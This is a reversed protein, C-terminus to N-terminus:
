ARRTLDWSRSRPVERRGAGRRNHDAPGARAGIRWATRCPDAALRQGSQRHHRLVERTHQVIAVASLRVSVSVDLLHTQRGTPEFSAPLHELAAQDPGEFRDTHPAQALTDLFESIPGVAPPLHTSLIRRPDLDRLTSLSPLFKSEDVVHVWPSDVAAWLHQGAHLADPRFTASTTPPPSTRTPCQRV